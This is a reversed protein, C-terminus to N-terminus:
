GISFPLTHPYLSVVVVGIVLAVIGLLIFLWGVIKKKRFMSFVGFGLFLITFIFLQIIM